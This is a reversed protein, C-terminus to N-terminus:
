ATVVQVGAGALSDAIARAEPSRFEIAEGSHLLVDVSPALGAVSGAVLVAGQGRRGSPRAHSRGNRSPSTDRCQSGPRRHALSRRGLSSRDTGRGPRGARGLRLVGPAPRSRGRLSRHPLLHAASDLEVRERRRTLVVKPLGLALVTLTVLGALAIGPVNEPRVAVFVLPVIAAPSLVAAYLLAPHIRVSGLVTVPPETASSLAQTLRTRHLERRRARARIVRERESWGYRGAYKKIPSWAFAEAIVLVPLAPVALVIILTMGRVPAGAVITVVGARM